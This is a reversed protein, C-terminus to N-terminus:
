EVGEMHPRAKLEPPPGEVARRVDTESLRYVLISYGVYDDPERQRLYGALRAFRLQDFLEVMSNINEQGYEAALRAAAQPDNQAEPLRHALDRYSDEYVQQWPGWPKILVTQLMTASVCYIGANMPPLVPPKDWDPYGALRAVNTIDYNQLLNNGFYSLYVPQGGANRDIWKKLKPLDQGWDLSSDVLYKYGNKPGGVTLNFFALYDPWTWLCEIALLCVLAPAAYKLWRARGALWLCAGGAIVFLPPYTPLIHRHGINLHSTISFLWYVGLLALLPATLYIGELRRRRRPAAGRALARGALALLSLIAVAITPLPTKVAFCFPFFTPWGVMSYNGMMFASRKQAYRHVHAFGYLYGEPLVKHDRALLLMRNVPGGAATLDGWTDLPQDAPGLRPNAMSYRMGYAVWIMVFVAVAHAATVGLLVVAQRLRTSVHRSRGFTTRMPEGRILKVAILILGLPVALVGSLKALFLGGMALCSVALRLPSLKHIARWLCWMSLSFFLGAAMDSTALQGHALMTPDFAFLMLSIMGGVQGFLSRSWAYVLAGLAVGLLAVMARCRWLIARTDNGVSFFFDKGIPWEASARWTPQDHSPFAVEGFLLPLAMWRQPLNGNEPDMRYDNYKWYAYGAPAHVIEDSTLSKELVSTVALVWYVALVVAAAPWGTLLGLRGPTPSAPRRDADHRGARGIGGSAGSGVEEAKASRAGARAQAAKRHQRSRQADRASM